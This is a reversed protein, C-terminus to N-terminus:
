RQQSGRAGIWNGDRGVMRQGSFGFAGHAFRFRLEAVEINQHM